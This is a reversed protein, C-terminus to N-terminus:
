GRALVIDPRVQARAIQQLRVAQQCVEDRWEAPLSYFIAAVWIETPVKFVEQASNPLSLYNM